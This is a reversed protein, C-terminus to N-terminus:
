AKDEIEVRKEDQEIGLFTKRTSEWREKHDDLKSLRPASGEHRGVAALDQAAGHDAAAVERLVGALLPPQLHSFLNLTSLLM